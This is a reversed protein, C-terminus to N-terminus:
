NIFSLHYIIFPIVQITASEIALRRGLADIDIVALLVNDLLIYAIQSSTRGKHGQHFSRASLRLTVLPTNHIAGAGQHGRSTGEFIQSRSKPIPLHDNSYLCIPIRTYAFPSFLATFERPVRVFFLSVDIFIVFILVLKPCNPLGTVVSSLATTSRMREGWVFSAASRM